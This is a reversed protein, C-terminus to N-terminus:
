EEIMSPFYMSPFVLYPSPSYISAGGSTAGRFNWTGLTPSFVQWPNLSLGAVDTTSLARGWALALSMLGTFGWTNSPYQCLYVPTANSPLNGAFAISGQQIGDIFYRLNTGDSTGVVVHWKNDNYNTSSYQKTSVNTCYWSGSYLSMGALVSDNYGGIAWPVTTSYDRSWWTLTSNNVTGGKVVILLTITTPNWSPLAYYNSVSSFNIGPDNTWTPSGTQTVTAKQVIETPLGGHDLFPLAYYLGPAYPNAWNISPQQRPKYVPVKVQRFSPM